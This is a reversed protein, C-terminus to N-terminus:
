KVTPRGVIWTGPVPWARMPVDMGDPFDLVWGAEGILDYSTVTMQRAIRGTMRANPRAMLDHWPHNVIEDLEGEAQARKIIAHREDARAGPPASLISRALKENPFRYQKESDAVDKKKPAALLRWRVAAVTSGVHHAVSRLPPSEGYARMIERSGKRPSGRSSGGTVEGITRRTSGALMAREHDGLPIEQTRSRWFTLSDILGM